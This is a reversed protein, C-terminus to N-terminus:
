HILDVDEDLGSMGKTKWGLPTLEFEIEGNSDTHRIVLGEREMQEMHRLLVDLEQKTPERKM